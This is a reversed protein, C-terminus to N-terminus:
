LAHSLTHIISGQAGGEFTCARYLDWVRCSVVIVQVHIYMGTFAHVIVIMIICVYVVVAYNSNTTGHM